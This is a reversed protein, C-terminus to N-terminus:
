LDRPRLVVPNRKGALARRVVAAEILPRNALYIERLSSDSQAQGYRAEWVAESLVGTIVESNLRLTFQLEGEQEKEIQSANKLEM